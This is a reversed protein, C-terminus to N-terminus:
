GLLHASSHATTDVGIAIKYGPPMPNLLLMELCM